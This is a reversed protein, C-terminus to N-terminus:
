EPFYHGGIKKFIWRFDIKRVEEQAVIPYQLLVEGNLVYRVTGLKEYRKVPAKIEEPLEVVTEIEEERHLLVEAPSNKMKEVKVPVHAKEFLKGSEPVGDEVAVDRLMEKGSFAERLEYNEIGYTMLKKTDAWKYGKNNPWGCGLLAVVFTRGESELAGVYCYGAKGTFGTKGSLAGDMMTLFANHNNCSFSRRCDVDMFHYSEKQTIALFTEKQPSKLICYSMIKALDEATTSHEGKDDSADLGDTALIHIM